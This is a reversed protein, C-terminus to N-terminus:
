RRHPRTIGNTTACVSISTTASTSAVYRMPLTPQNGPQPTSLQRDTTATAHLGAAGNSTPDPVKASGNWEIEVPMASDFPRM